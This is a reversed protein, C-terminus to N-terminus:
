EYLGSYNLGSMIVGISGTLTEETAFIKDANASIYYGGSAAMNQMSVYLPKKTQKKLELLKDKIEASEFTGGGPSNVVLVIGKVSDDEEIYQIQNLLDAHNYGGSSFLSSEGSDVITGEVTLVAISKKTDGAELVNKAATEGGLLMNYTDNFNATEEKDKQMMNVLYSSGISLVFLGLAIGIASWRKKNM